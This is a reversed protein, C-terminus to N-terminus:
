EHANLFRYTEYAKNAEELRNLKMLAVKKLGFVEKMTPDIAEVQECVGLAEEFREELTLIRAQALLTLPALAIGLARSVFGKAKDLHTERVAPDTADAALKYYTIALNRLSTEYRPDSQVARTFYDVAAQVNGQQLFLIGMNNNAVPNGPEAQLTRVVVMKKKELAAEKRRGLMDNARGMAAYVTESFPNRKIAERYHALAAEINARGGKKLLIDGLGVYAPAYNPDLVLARNFAVTAQALNRNAELERGTRVLNAPTERKFLNLPNIKKLLQRGEPAPAPASGADPAQAPTPAAEAASQKERPPAPNASHDAM